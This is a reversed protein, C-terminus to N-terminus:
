AHQAITEAITKETYTTTITDISHYTWRSLIVSQLLSLSCGRYWESVVCSIHCCLCSCINNNIHIHIHIRRLVSVYTYMEDLSARPMLVYMYVCQCAVCHCYLVLFVVHM